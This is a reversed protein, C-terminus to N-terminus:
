TANPHSQWPIRGQDLGWLGIGLAGGIALLIILGWLGNLLILLRIMVIVMALFGIALAIFLFNDIADPIRTDYMPASAHKRSKGMGTKSDTHNDKQNDKDAM